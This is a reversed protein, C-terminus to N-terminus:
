SIELNSIAHGYQNGVQVVKRHAQKYIVHDSSLKSGVHRLIFIVITFLSPQKYWFTDQMKVAYLTAVM